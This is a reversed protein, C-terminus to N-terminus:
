GSYGIVFRRSGAFGGLREFGVPKGSFDTLVNSNFWRM